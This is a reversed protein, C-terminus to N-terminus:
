AKAEEKKEGGAKIQKVIADYQSKTWAYRTYIGDNYKEMARLKRRLQKGNMGLALAMDKTTYVKEEVKEKKARTVRTEKNEMGIEGKTQTFIYM